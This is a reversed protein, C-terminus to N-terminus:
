NTINTENRGTCKKIIEYFMMIGTELLDDPFDYDPNHLAPTNEGAGLGFMAGKFKQTFLGFDEGWKFPYAREDINLELTTAAERVIDVAETTNQNARFVQTWSIECTGGMETVCEQVYEELEECKKDMLGTSWSRITLHVEGYGASVGYAKEGMEMYIPTILFFDDRDPRNNTVQGAYTLIKAICGAPNIGLEPEAAHATKGFLKIIISQVNATFPGERVVITNKEYGPLNHLAFVHDFDFQLFSPDDSVGRAGEGNEEAPQFLLVVQGETVPYETLLGALGLLITTHGDHGCKHSVGERTSRHEFTNIEEIPLADIDGRILCNCGPNEGNFVALVGTRAVKIVEADTYEKLYEIIRNSTEFEGGSLEPFRHFTRRTSTLEEIHDNLWTQIESIRREM